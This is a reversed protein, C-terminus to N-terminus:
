LDIVQKGPKLPYEDNKWIFTGTLGQPLSIIATSKVKGQVEISILGKPHPMSAKLFELNNTSPKITVSRFGPSGPRIGCLTALLDYNPSASWAHCDSREEYDGEEFTSLGKSLMERWPDLLEIYYGALGTKYLAQFLYFKYYITTSILDSGQIINKLIEEQKTIPIADTLIGFINTHESYYKKEPTDALFGREANFCSQYVSKKIKEAEKKYQVAQDEENFHQFLEAARELAYVYNLSILASNGTDVGHASGCMFGVTWDSFNFWDLPGLMGKDKDMHRDFWSLVSEIGPLFQKIFEDDERHMYFDHVMDVWYLSFPPTVQPLYSPARGLTLGEPIRSQDIQKLANRMLRDDGSNYLSILSQLRTDGIYQLQEYYPCDMYTELACLRVTRWGTNWIENLTENNSEFVANQTFPYATFVNYYDDIILEEDSTEIEFQIFRFTRLWLTRFSRNEGGDPIFVDYYGKIEKEKTVNRNGKSGDQNYLAESYIVKIIGGKGKDIELVPFGMTLVKNDLLFKVKSRGPIILKGKEHIFQISNIDIGDVRVVEPIRENKQELFPIERPVLHWPVGHMYGRGVGLTIRKPQLWKSDDFSLTQWNWPYKQAVISDCPGAVYYKHVMEKTVAIAHYAQNEMIKWKGFGTNILEGLAGEAQLVFATKHSFQAAPRHEGLNHVEAAIINKGKRLYSTIDLSDYKWYMLSSRAPGFSVEQGNVFLRYRNDASVYLANHADIEELTFENRFLFVNYDYVSEFPHSIWYSEWTHRENDWNKNVKLNREQGVSNLLFMSSLVFISTYKRVEIKM